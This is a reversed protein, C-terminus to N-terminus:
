WRMQNLYRRWGGMGAGSSSTAASVAFTRGSSIAALWAQHSALVATDSSCSRRRTAVSMANRSASPSTLVNAPM